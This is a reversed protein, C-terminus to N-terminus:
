PDRVVIDLTWCRGPQAPPVLECEFAAGVLRALAAPSRPQTGEALLLHRVVQGRTLKALHSVVSRRGAQESLVRVAVTRAALEAPPSWAARYTSSRCDVVLGRGAAATLVPGLLPRWFAALSGVGPLDTGLSLRYPPVRDGPRLAGWLASVVVVQRAARSRSGVPLGPLDLADYLVGTYLESVLRAPIGRLRTNGEVEAGLSPGVGLLRLADPRASAAALADLVQERAPTLDPWSLRTLDLHRRRGGGRAKGESPPLLVLM